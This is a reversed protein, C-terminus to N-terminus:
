SCGLSEKELTAKKILRSDPFENILEKLTVCAQEKKNIKSLSISLKFLVDPVKKSEPYKQYGEAFILAAEKYDGKLYVIEGIWYNASGALVHNENKVIFEELAKKAQDLKQSRLLDFAFQYQEDPSLDPLIDNEMNDINEIIEESINENSISLSGLIQNENNLNNSEDISNKSNETSIINETQQLLLDDIKEKLEDIKFVYEEVYENLQKIENEIDRIRLDFITLSSENYNLDESSEESDQRYVKMQLDKIDEEVRELSQLINELNEAQLNKNLFFLVLLITLIYKLFFKYLM